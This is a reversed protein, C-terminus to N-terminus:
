GTFSGSKMGSIVILVKTQKETIQEPKNEGRMRTSFTWKLRIIGAGALHKSPRWRRLILKNQMRRYNGITIDDKHAMLTRLINMINLM